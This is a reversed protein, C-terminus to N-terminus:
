LLAAENYNIIAVADDEEQAPPTPIGLAFSTGHYTYEKANELSTLTIMAHGSRDHAM